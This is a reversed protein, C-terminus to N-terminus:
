ILDYVNISKIKNYPVPATLVLQNSSLAQGDITRKDAAFTSAQGVVKSWVGDCMM